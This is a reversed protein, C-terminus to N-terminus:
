KTVRRGFTKYKIKTSKDLAIKHIIPQLQSQMETKIENDEKKWLDQRWTLDTHVLEEVTYVKNANIWKWIKNKNTKRHCHQMIRHKKTHKMDKITITINNKEMWKKIQYIWSSRDEDVYDTYSHELPNTNINAYERERELAGMIIDYMEGKWRISQM